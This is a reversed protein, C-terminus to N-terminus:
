SFTQNELVYTILCIIGSLGILPHILVILKPINKQRIDMTLLFIGGMAAIIFLALSAILLLSRNGSVIDGIVVLIAFFAVAGHLFVISKPTKKNNFIANLIILGFLIALTLFILGIVLM